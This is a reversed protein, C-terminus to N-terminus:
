IWNWGNSKELVIACEGSASLIDEFQQIDRKTIKKVMVTDVHVMETDRNSNIM